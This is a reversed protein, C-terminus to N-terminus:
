VVDVGVAKRSKTAAISGPNRGFQTALSAVVYGQINCYAYNDLM